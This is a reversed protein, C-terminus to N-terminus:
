QSSSQPGTESASTSMHYLGNVVAGECKVNKTENDIITCETPSFVAYCNNDQSLKRISLLNHSFTPVYLVHLLKLGNEMFVDGVHTVSAKARTPLNVILQEANRKVNRLLEFDATM